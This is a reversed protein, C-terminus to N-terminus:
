SHHGTGDESGISSRSLWVGVGGGQEESAFAIILDDRATETSTWSAFTTPGGRSALEASQERVYEGSETQLYVELEGGRRGGGTPGAMATSTASASGSFPDLRRDDFFLPVGSAAIGDSGVRYRIVGTRAQNTNGVLRFQIFVTYLETGASGHRIAVDPHQCQEARWTVASRGM